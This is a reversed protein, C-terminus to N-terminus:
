GLPASAHVLHGTKGSSPRQVVLPPAESTGPLRVSHSNESAQEM